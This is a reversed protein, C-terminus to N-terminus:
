RKLVIMEGFEMNKKEPNFRGFGSEPFFTLEGFYIKEKIVYFDTRLFPFGESLEKSLELMKKIKQPKDIIVKEDRPYEFTADIENWDVGYLNRKHSQFRNYDVQIMKPEGNFNFIKYDKLEKESEDEMYKEAIICPRVNKYPWERGLYWFNHKLRENLKQRTAGFDLKQKDKCVVVSGSDHNCKLVFKEPLVEFDIEYASNWPGGVLPIIYEEGIKERVYERVKYKDVMMTYEPKRNYLKLWQLKENFTRPEKLDLKKGTKVRYCIQLYLKDPIIKVLYRIKQTNMM